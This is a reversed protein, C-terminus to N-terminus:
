VAIGSYKVVSIGKAILKDAEQNYWDRCQKWTQNDGRADARKAMGDYVMLGNILSSIEKAERKSLAM